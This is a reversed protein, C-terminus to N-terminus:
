LERLVLQVLQEPKNIETENMLKQVIPLIQDDRFGLEKCAMLAEHVFDSPRPPPLQTKSLKPTKSSSAMPAKALKPALDLLIQAATKPGIGSVSCLLKKDEFLIAHHLSEVGLQRILQYATRPGVGNVKLLLEFFKKEHLSQFAYLAESDERIIQSLFLQTRQGEPLIQCFFVQMGLGNSLKIISEEGDSFIVEGEIYGLM